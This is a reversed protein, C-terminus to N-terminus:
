PTENRWVLSRWGQRVFLQEAITQLQTLPIHHIRDVIEQQTLLGNGDLFAQGWGILNQLRNEEALLLRGILQEKAIKFERPGPCRLRPNRLIRDIKTRVKPAQGADCSFQISWMGSDSYPSYHADIDYVLASKERLEMSLRASMHDGGLWNVLLALAWRMDHRVSPARGGMIGYAQNFDKLEEREQQGRLATPAKRNPATKPNQFSRKPMREELAKLVEAAELPGHYVFVAPRAGFVSRYHHRVSASSLTTLSSEYGLIPHSLHHKGYVAKEFAELLSEDPNDSYMGIEERIVKQEKAFEQDTWRSNWWMDAVLDVAAQSHKAPCSAHLVLREKTTFANIDGGKNELETLVQMPRRDETGKFLLHELCHTAGSGIPEDDRSGCDSLLALHSLSHHPEHVWLVPFGRSTRLVRPLDQVVM